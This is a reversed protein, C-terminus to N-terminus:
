RYLTAEITLGDGFLRDLHTNIFDSGSEDINLIVIYNAGYKSASKKLAKIAKDKNFSNSNDSPVLKIKGFKVASKPVEDVIICNETSPYHHDLKPM